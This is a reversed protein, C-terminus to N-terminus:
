TFYSTYTLTNDRSITTKISVSIAHFFKLQLKIGNRKLHMETYKVNKEKKKKSACDFRILDKNKNRPFVWEANGLYHANYAQLNPLIFFIFSISNCESNKWNNSDYLSISLVFEFSFYHIVSQCSKFLETYVYSHTLLNQGNLIASFYNIKKKWFFFRQM